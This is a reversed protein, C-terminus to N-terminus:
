LVSFDRLKERPRLTMLHERSNSWLHPAKRHEPVQELYKINCTLTGLAFCRTSSVSLHNTQLENAYSLRLFETTLKMSVPQSTVKLLGHLVMDTKLKDWQLTLVENPAFDTQTTQSRLNMFANLSLESQKKSLKDKRNPFGLKRMKGNKKPLPKYSENRLNSIIEHVWEMCFGNLSMGDARKTEAGHNSKIANYAIIYLNEDYFL